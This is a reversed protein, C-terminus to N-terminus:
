PQHQLQVPYSDDGYLKTEASGMHSCHLGESFTAFNDFIDEWKESSLVYSTKEVISAFEADGAGLM